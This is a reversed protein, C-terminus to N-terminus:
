VGRADIPWVFKHIQLQFRVNVLNHKQMFEVIDAYPITNFVPSVFAQACTEPLMRLMEELDEQSGIVFKIVDNSHLKSLNSRLMKDTMGSSPCKWDMTVRVGNMGVYDSVDVAGSTEIEVNYGERVLRKVLDMCDKQILPEGGTLIIDKYGIKEVDKMIDDISMEKFDRGKIAYISDCWECKLPCGFTRIFTTLFGARVSEGSISGFIESILM